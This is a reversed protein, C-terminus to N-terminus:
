AARFEEIEDTPAPPPRHTGVIESIRRLLEELGEATKASVTLRDSRDKRLDSKTEVEIIPITPYEKRWRALLQEQEPVSYGSSGTPDIVFLILTAAHGVAIEAEIESPNSRRGRALVGPTDLVQLRDFGLDAHGVQVQLTTFPYEAVKPRATSLRAVLSSKGVNPFGAVVVTPDTAVLKPRSDLFQDIDRLRRLDPDIERVHSALRGYFRRVSAAYEESTTARALSRQEEQSLGRIRGEARKLRTLSRDLSGRGFARDILQTEFPSRPGALFPRMELRLHRVVVAASRVIKLQARRKARERASQGRPTAKYAKHFAADLIAASPPAQSRPLNAAGRDERGKKM